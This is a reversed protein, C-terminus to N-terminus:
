SLLTKPLCVELLTQPSIFTQVTVSNDAPLSSTESHITKRIPNLTRPNKKGEFPLYFARLTCSSGLLVDERRIVFSWMVQLTFPSNIIAQGAEFSFERFVDRAV